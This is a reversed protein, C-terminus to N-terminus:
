HNYVFERSNLLAWTLAELGEKRTPQKGIMRTLETIERETPFRSVSALYLEEIIERDTREEDILKGIRGSAFDKTFTEGSLRHLSRLITLQPKDEPVGRRDNRNFAEFFACEIDNPLVSIARTGPPVGNKNGDKGGAVLESDLGTVLSIADLLVPPDLLQPLARSYNITDNQNSPTPEGSLQYTWSRVIRRMLHKLDYGHEVFDASLAALLEPHSPPQDTRFDDVPDVIGRKLFYSWIRNVIAEAFYPNDPSTVWEAFRLRLDRREEPPLVTGDLFTPQAEEGTRPHKLKGKNVKRFGHGAPDDFVFYPGRMGPVRFLRTINGFFAAIGWYQDQSWKEFPHDHCQACGFRRGLFVRIQETAVEPAPTLERFTWYHWAPSDYGQAAIRERAVEDYPRNTQFNKRVWEEHLRAHEANLTAMSYVRFLESFRYTWFDVYEPSALLTEILEERKDPNESALFERVRVPPPLTGTLDLCIRRLFEADDSERSPVIHFRRLKTLIHEDIFNRPEVEPFHTVVQPIVGVTANVAHGAARVIITTEGTHKATVIGATDVEAVELDHSEFHVRDTIDDQRGDTLYATVLLRHASSPQLVVERPSVEIREVQAPPTADSDSEEGYPAGSEIWRALTAYGEDDVSLAAKGGHSVERTAKLLLLSQKPDQLDIRSVPPPDATEPKMVHYTGGNVIWRYDAEPFVANISLKFGGKGKVSGHCEQSNCGRKTLVAGVDRAFSFPRPETAKEVEVRTVVSEGAFKATLKTEGDALSRIKGDTAIEVIGNTDARFQSEGTVDREIGNAYEALVLLRQTADAGSLVPDEPLLRLTFHPKAALPTTTAAAATTSSVASITDLRRPEPSVDKVIVRSKARVVMLPVETVLIGESPRGDILPRAVVRITQPMRTSPTDTDAELVVTLLETDPLFNYAKVVERDEDRTNEIATGPYAQVGPPLNEVVLTLEGHGATFRRTGRPEVVDARIEEISTRITLTRAEGPKLNVRFPELRADEFKRMLTEVHITGVHPIQERVLLRYRFRPGGVRSTVDRIELSYEEPQEFTQIIKTELAEFDWRETKPHEVRRVNTLITRGISDTIEIRPNFHPPISDVTEIEFALAKPEHLRFTFRDIDGPHDITGEILTPVTITIAESPDNNPEHAKLTTVTPLASEPPPAVARTWLQSLRDPKLSRTFVRDVTTPPTGYRDYKSAREVVRLGYAYDPAGKSRESGVELVYTGTKAFRHTFESTIPTDGEIVETHFALRTLQNPDFFSGTPDYLKLQPRFGNQLAERSLIVEFALEDDQEVNLMYRDLEGQQSLKGNIVTPWTLATSPSQQTDATVPEFSIAERHVHFYLANSVGQPTVLRLRHPGVTAESRITLELRVREGDEPYPTVTAELGAGDDFWAAFAKALGKGRVDVELRTALTGCLPFLSDLKPEIAQAADDAVVPILGVTLIVASTVCLTKRVWKATAAFSIMNLARM